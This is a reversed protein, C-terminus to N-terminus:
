SEDDTSVKGSIEITVDVTIRDGEPISTPLETVLGSFSLTTEDTDPFVVQYNKAADEEFDGKIILYTSRKFNMTFTLTGGDRLGGIKERYGDTSDYTTTEVTERTMGPGTINYVEALKTFAETPTAGDGRKFQTGIGTVTM